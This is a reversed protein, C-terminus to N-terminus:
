HRGGRQKIETATSRASIHQRSRALSDSLISKHAVSNDIEFGLRRLFTNTESGGNFKVSPWEHGTAYKAALTVTYKPPYRKGQYILHYLTSERGSRVGERDIEAIAARVHEATIERPIM